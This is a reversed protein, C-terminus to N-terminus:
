CDSKYNRGPYVDQCKDNGNLMLCLVKTMEGDESRLIGPFM